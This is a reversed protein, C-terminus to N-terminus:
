NYTHSKSNTGDSNVFQGDICQLCDDLIHKTGNEVCDWTGVKCVGRLPFCDNETSCSSCKSNTITFMVSNSEDVSLKLNSVLGELNEPIKCEILSNNVVNTEVVKGQIKCMSNSHFFEGVLLVVDLCHSNMDLDCIPDGNVHSVRPEQYESLVKLLSVSKSYVLFFHNKGRCDFGSYGSDCLCRNEVCIGKQNCSNPCNIADKVSQLMPKKQQMLSQECQAEVMALSNWGSDGGLSM